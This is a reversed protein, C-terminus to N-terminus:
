YRYYGPKYPEGVSVSIYDAKGMSLETLKVGIKELHIRTVEEDL